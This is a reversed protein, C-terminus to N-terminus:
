EDDEDDSDEEAQVNLIKQSARDLTRQTYKRTAKWVTYLFTLVGILVLTLNINEMRQRGTGARRAGGSVIGSTRLNWWQWPSMALFAKVFGLLGLSFVGKLLHEFWGDAEGIDLIDEDAFRAGPIVSDTITGVPDLWLGLIPDAVFGLLFITVFLITLTMMLSIVPSRLRQAWSLREMRYQYKCIDCKYGKSPNENMWLKLCGEHMYKISGKCLCPSILRDGDESIYQRRPRRGRMGDLVGTDEYTPPVWELCIRCKRSHKPEGEANTESSTTRQRTNDSENPNTSSSQANTSEHVDANESSPPASPIDGWNWTSSSAQM